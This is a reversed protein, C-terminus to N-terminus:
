AVFKLERKKWELTDFASCTPCHAAWQKAATGCSSCAWSESTTTESKFANLKSLLSSKLTSKYPGFRECDWNDSGYCNTMSSTLENMLAITFDSKNSSM